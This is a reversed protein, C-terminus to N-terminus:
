GIGDFYYFGGEAYELPEIAIIEANEDTTVFVVCPDFFGDHPYEEMGKYPYNIASTQYETDLPRYVFFEGTVGAVITDETDYEVQQLTCSNGFELWKIAYFSSSKLRIDPNDDDPKKLKQAEESSAKRRLTWFGGTTRDYRLVDKNFPIDHSVIERMLMHDWGRNNALIIQYDAREEGIYLPDDEKVQAGGSIILHDYSDRLSEFMDDLQYTYEAYNGDAVTFKVTMDSSDFTFTDKIEDQGILQGPELIEWEGDLYSLMKSYAPSVEKKANDAQNSETQDNEVQVKEITDEATQEAATQGEAVQDKATKANESKPPNYVKEGLSAQGGCGAMMASITFLSLVVTISRRIGELSKHKDNMKRYAM